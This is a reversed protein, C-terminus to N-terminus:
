DAAIAVLSTELDAEFAQSPFLGVLATYAAQVVAARRSAGRPADPQVHIPTYRREIGNLADFMSAHVIATM